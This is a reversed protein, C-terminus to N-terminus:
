FLPLSLVQLCALTSCNSPFFYTFVVTNMVVCVCVHLCVCLCAGPGATRRDLLGINKRLQKMDRDGV